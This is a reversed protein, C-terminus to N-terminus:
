INILIKYQKKWRSVQGARNGEENRYFGNELLADFNEWKFNAVKRGSFATDGILFFKDKKLQYALRAAAYDCHAGNLIGPAYISNNEFTADVLAPECHGFQTIAKFLHTV